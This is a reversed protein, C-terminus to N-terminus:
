PYTRFPGHRLDRNPNRMPGTQLSLSPSGETSQLFIPFSRRAAALDYLMQSIDVEATMRHRDILHARTVSLPGPKSRAYRTLACKETSNKPERM